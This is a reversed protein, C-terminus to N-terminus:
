VSRKEQQEIQTEIKAIAQRCRGLRQHLTLVKQQLESDQTAAKNLKAQEDFLMQELRKEFGQYESLKEYLARTPQMVRETFNKMRKQSIRHRRNLRYDSDQHRSDNAKIATILASIQQQLQELLTYSLSQQGKALLKDLHILKQQIGPIYGSYTDFSKTFLRDDFLAQRQLYYHSKRQKNKQDAAKADIILQEVLQQLRKIQSQM